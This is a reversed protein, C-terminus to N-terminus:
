TSMMSVEIMVSGTASSTPASRVERSIAELSEALEGAFVTRMLMVAVSESGSRAASIALM